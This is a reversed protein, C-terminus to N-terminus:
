EKKSNGSFRAADYAARLEGCEFMRVDLDFGGLEILDDVVAQVLNILSVFRRRHEANMPPM